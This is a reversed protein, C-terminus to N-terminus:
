NKKSIKKLIKYKGILPLEKSYGKNTNIIGYAALLLAILSLIFSIFDIFIPVSVGNSGVFLIKLIKDLIVSAIEFAFLNVGQNIHFMVYPSKKIEKKSLPIVFLFFIYCLMAYTRNVAVEDMPFSHTLDNPNLLKEFEDVVEEKNDKQEEKKVDTFTPNMDIRPANDDVKESKENIRNAEDLDVIEIKDKDNNDMFDYGKM